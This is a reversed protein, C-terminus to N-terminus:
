QELNAFNVYFEELKKPLKRQRRPREDGATRSEGNDSNNVPLVETMTDIPYPAVLSTNDRDDNGQDKDMCESTESDLESAGKAVENCGQYRKLRDVHVVLPKGYRGCKVRYNVDSLRDIVEYPGYWWTQLKPSIGRKRKPSFLWVLDGAQFREWRTRSDYYRKQRRMNCRLNDRAFRHSIELRRELSQIWEHSSSYRQDPPKGFVVDLPLDAERGMMMFNPTFGSTEHVASRYAMALYPLHEDWDRQREEVFASLMGELTRNMREVM